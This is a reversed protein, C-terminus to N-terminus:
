EKGVGVPTIRVLAGFKPHDFYNLDQTKVRRHDSIRYNLETAGATKDLLGLDLDVYLYRSLYFRLAGDLQNDSSRLRVPKTASKEEVNQRWRRHVLVHYHGERELAAAALDLTNDSPAAEANVAEAVDSIVARKNDRTWLEGGDLEPLRNEFVLVEIDFTTAAPAAADACFPVLCALLALIRKM